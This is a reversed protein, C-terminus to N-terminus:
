SPNAVEISTQPFGLAEWCNQFAPSAKIRFDAKDMDWQKQASLLIQAAHAGLHAVESADIQVPASLMDRLESLMRLSSAYDLRQPLALVAHTVPAEKM